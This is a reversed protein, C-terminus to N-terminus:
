EVWAAAARAPSLVLTDLEGASIGVSRAFSDLDGATVHARPPSSTDLRRRVPKLPPGSLHAARLQAQLSAFRPTLDLPLALDLFTRRAQLHWSAAQANALMGRGRERERDGRELQQRLQAAEALARGAQQQQADWRRAAGEQQGRAGEHAAQMASCRM